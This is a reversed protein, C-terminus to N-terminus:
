KDLLNYRFLYFLITSKKNYTALKSVKIFTKNNLKFLYFNLNLGILTIFLYVFIFFISLYVKKQRYFEKQM